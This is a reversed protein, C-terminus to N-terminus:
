HRVQGHGMGGNENLSHWFGADLRHLYAGLAEIVDLQRSIENRDVLPIAEDKFVEMCRAHQEVLEGATMGIAIDLLERKVDGSHIDVEQGSETLFAM